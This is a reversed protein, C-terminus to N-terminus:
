LILKNLIYKNHVRKTNIMKPKLKEYRVQSPLVNVHRRVAELTAFRKGKPSIYFPKVASGNRAVIIKWGRPMVAGQHIDGISNSVVTM